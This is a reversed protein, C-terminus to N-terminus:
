EPRWSTHTDLERHVYMSLMEVDFCMKVGVCSENVAVVSQEVRRARRRLYGDRVSCVWMV